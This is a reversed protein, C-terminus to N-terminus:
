STAENDDALSLGAASLFSPLDEKGPKYLKGFSIHNNWPASVRAPVRTADTLYDGLGPMNAGGGTILIQSLDADKRVRSLYFKEIRKIEKVVKDLQPAVAQKIKKQNKSTNLGHSVKLIKAEKKSVGIAKAISDTLDEGGVDVTGTVRLTDDLLGVDISHGGVDIVIYPMNKHVNEYLQCLKADAEINTQILSLELRLLKCVSVYSDVIDRPSAVTRVLVDSSDPIATADYDFYLNKPALPVSQEVELEVASQLEKKTMQPLTIVRTFVHAVPISMVVRNTTLKGVLKSSLLEDVQKAAAQTNTIVGRSIVKNDTSMDGYGIVNAGHRSKELQMVKINKSGIDLGFTPKKHYFLSHKDPKM